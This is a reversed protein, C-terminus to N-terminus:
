GSVRGLSSSVNENVWIQRGKVWVQTMEVRFSNFNIWMEIFDYYSMKYNYM